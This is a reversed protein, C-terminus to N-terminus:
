IYFFSGRTLNFLRPISLFVPLEVSGAKKFFTTFSNVYFKEFYLTVCKFNNLSVYRSEPSLGYTLKKSLMPIRYFGDYVNEFDATEQIRM